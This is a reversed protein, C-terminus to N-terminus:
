AYCFQVINQMITWFQTTYTKSIRTNGAGNYLGCKTTKYTFDTYLGRTICRYNRYESIQKFRWFSFLVPIGHHFKNRVVLHSEIM